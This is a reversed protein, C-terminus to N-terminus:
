ISSTPVCNALRIIRQTGVFFCSVCGHDPSSALTAAPQFRERCKRTHTTGRQHRARTCGGATLKACHLLITISLGVLVALCSSSIFFCTPKKEIGAFLVTLPASSTRESFFM